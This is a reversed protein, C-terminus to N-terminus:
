KLEDRLRELGSSKERKRLDVETHSQNVGREDFNLGM